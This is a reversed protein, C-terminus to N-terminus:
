EDDERITIYRNLVQLFNGLDITGQGCSGSMIAIDFLGDVQEECLEDFAQSDIIEKFTNIVDKSKVVHRTKM